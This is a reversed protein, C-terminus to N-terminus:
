SKAAVRQLYLQRTLELHGYHEYVHGYTQLLLVLATSPGRHPHVVTKTLSDAPVTASAEDLFADAEDLMKLLETRDYARNEDWAFAPGPTEMIRAVNGRETAAIHQILAGIANTEEGPRWNLAAPEIGDIAERIKTHIPRFLDLVAAPALERTQTM